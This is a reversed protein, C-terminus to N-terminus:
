HRKTACCSKQGCQSSSCNCQTEGKATKWLLRIVYWSAAIGIAVLIIKEMM